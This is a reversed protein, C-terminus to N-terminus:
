APRSPRWTPLRRSGSIGSVLFMAGLLVYALGGRVHGLLSAMFNVLARALGTVEILLGLYVFLPIALLVMSSMGEEMRSVVVILPVRTTLLLYSITCLIFTFAIPLAIVILVALLIVFFFVLNFNGMGVLLPRALWLM